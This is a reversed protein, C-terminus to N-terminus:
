DFDQTSYQVFFHTQRVHEVYMWNSQIFVLLIKQVWNSINSMIICSICQIFLPSYSLELLALPNCIPGNNLFNCARVHKVYMWNSQIFVLLIKQVWNSINSMIICSICQIFLPSYSLELLALPNCIPGNNLFNCARVHKVYMWNSQIFVLLIKQVRNSINSMIICSICQIFLPSYSLELLALPNCIPGNNLFNCARVHKVYMWNSQIFVLLIKQVRNSINSMIICSICQIFLPSYSLELLALPNCIPGNNLFNCARVHKVYMWNSQIFVLLIKQVRNSINSMIICSICQIFLPSYSLELLALPNCIPGNNLFNCARVHKVYMWNSQIFVLLIKQVRNSINSMIICSICQIFLPSYSLELLALPNCIPGNNLFNCARVHKVYMWNSQIFVLLIKQVRNSINSMIICSICQIFLPSYSLELLALPNCIPGNNLFNCARVHKVYMWNSQIFVLLIKQVRNSINSMIICSICQIFLPSYSLELLALPNCIPGNNLFNCARVHKVYMWNSQIFVLLIKQVWNSMNSMLIFSIYQTFLPSYSLELLAIPNCILGNNLFNYARIHEVYMWNSQIFVIISHINFM